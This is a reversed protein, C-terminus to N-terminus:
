DTWLLKQEGQDPGGAQLRQRDFNAARDLFKNNTAYPVM